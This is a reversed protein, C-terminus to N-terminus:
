KKTAVKGDEDDGGHGDIKEGHQEVVVENKVVSEMIDKLKRGIEGNGSKAIFCQQHQLIAEAPTLCPLNLCEEIHHLDTIAIVIEVNGHQDEIQNEVSDDGNVQEHLLDVSAFFARMLSILSQFLPRVIQPWRVGDNRSRTARCSSNSFSTFFFCM